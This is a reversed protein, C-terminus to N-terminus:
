YIRTAVLQLIAQIVPFVLFIFRIAFIILINVCASKLCTSTKKPSIVKVVMGRGLFVFVTCVEVLQICATFCLILYGHYNWILCLQFINWEEWLESFLGFGLTVFTSTSFVTCDPLWSPFLKFFVPFM